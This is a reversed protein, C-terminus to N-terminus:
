LLLLCSLTQPTIKMACGNCSNMQNMQHICMLVLHGGVKPSLWNVQAALGDSYAAITDVHVM